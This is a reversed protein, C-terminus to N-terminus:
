KPRHPVGTLGTLGIRRTPAASTAAPTRNSRRQDRGIRWQFSLKAVLRTTGSQAEGRSLPSLGGPGFPGAPSPGLTLKGLRRM